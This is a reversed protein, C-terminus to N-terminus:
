QMSTISFAGDNDYCAKTLYYKTIITLKISEKDYKQELKRKDIYVCLKNNLAIFSM